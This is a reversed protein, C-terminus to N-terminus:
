KKLKEVEHIARYLLRKERSEAFELVANEMEDIDKNKIIEQLKIKTSQSIFSDVEFLDRLLAEFSNGFTERKPLSYIINEGERVFKIVNEKRCGSVVYPSHTALVFEQEKNQSVENLIKVFHSRWKPNFHSEPEDLGDKRFFVSFYCKKLM